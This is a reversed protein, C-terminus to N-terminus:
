EPTSAGGVVIHWVTDAPFAINHAKSCSSLTKMRGRPGQTSM